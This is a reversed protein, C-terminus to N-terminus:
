CMIDNIRGVLWTIKQVARIYTKHVYLREHAWMIIVFHIKESNVRVRCAVDLQYFLVLFGVPQGVFGGLLLGMAVFICCLLAIPLDVDFLIISARCCIEPMANTFHLVNDGFWSRINNTTMMQSLKHESQLCFLKDALMFLKCRTRLVFFCSSQKAWWTWLIRIWSSLM